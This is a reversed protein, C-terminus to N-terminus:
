MPITRGHTTRMGKPNYHKSVSERAHRWGQQQKWANKLVAHTNTKESERHQRELELQRGLEEQM